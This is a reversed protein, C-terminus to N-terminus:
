LMTSANEVIHNTIKEKIKSHSTKKHIGQKIATQQM